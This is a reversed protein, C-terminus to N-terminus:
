EGILKNFMNGKATAYSLWYIVAILSLVDIPSFSLAISLFGVAIAGQAVSFAICVAILLVFAIAYIRKAKAADQKMTFSAFLLTGVIIIVEIITEIMFFVELNYNKAFVIIDYKNSLTFYKMCFAIFFNLAATYSM